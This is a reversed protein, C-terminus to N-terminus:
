AAVHRPVVLSVMTLNRGYSRATTITDRSVCGILFDLRCGGERALLLSEIVVPPGIGHFPRSHLPVQHLSLGSQGMSVARPWEWPLNRRMCSQRVPSMGSSAALIALMMPRLPPGYLLAASREQARMYSSPHARLGGDYLVAAYRRIALGYPRRCTLVAPVLTIGIISSSVCCPGVMCNLWSTTTAPSRAEPTHSLALTVFFGTRM